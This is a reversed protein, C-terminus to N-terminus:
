AMLLASGDREVVPVPAAALAAVCGLHDGDADLDTLQVPRALGAPDPWVLLRPETDPASVTLTAPAVSLGHGTAKVVAEKRTWYRVFGRRRAHEPQARLWAQEPESLAVSALEAHKLRPNVEEVDIGIAEVAALTVAVAVRDGSHTISLQVPRAPRRVRPKGHAAGCRICARDFEVQGPDVALAAAVTLRALAHAVLYRDRDADQVIRALRLREVDDLLDVLSPAADGPRAWWVDIGGDM